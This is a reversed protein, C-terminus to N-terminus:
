SIFERSSFPLFELDTSLLYKETLFAVFWISFDNATSYYSIDKVQVLLSKEKVDGIANLEILKLSNGGKM